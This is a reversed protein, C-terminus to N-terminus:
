VKPNRCDETPKTAVGGGRERYHYSDVKVMSLGYSPTMM